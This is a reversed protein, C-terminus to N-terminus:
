VTQRNIEWSIKRIVNEEWQGNPKINNLIVMMFWADQGSFSVTYLKQSMTIKRLYDLRKKIMFEICARALLIRNPLADARGVFDFLQRLEDKSLKVKIRIPRLDHLTYTNNM